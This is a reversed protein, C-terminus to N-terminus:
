FSWGFGASVDYGSLDLTGFGSFDDGLDDSAYRYRGEAFFSWRPNLPIDIGLLGFAEWTTGEAGYWAWIVPNGSSGFDIFYGEDTLSWWLFGGGVGAYPRVGRDGFRYVWAATLDSTGLGTTHSVESGDDAVWDEYSSTTRGAYVTFGFLVGSKRSTRWLYDMGWSFDQLDAPRGTFGEFVNDWGDSGGAPEFIGFRFRLQGFPEPQWGQQAAADAAIVFISLVILPVLTHRRM